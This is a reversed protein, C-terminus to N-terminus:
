GVSSSTRRPGIHGPVSVLRAQDIFRAMPFRDRHFRVNPGFSPEDWGRPLGCLVYQNDRDNRALADVLSQTYRRVGGWPGALPRCDIAIRM